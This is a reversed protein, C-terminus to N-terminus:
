VSTEAPVENLCLLDDPVIRWQTPVTYVITWKICTLIHKNRHAAIIEREVRQLATSQGQMRMM